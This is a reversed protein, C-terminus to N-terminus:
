WMKWVRKMGPICWVNMRMHFLTLQVSLSRRKAPVIYQDWSSKVCVLVDDHFQQGLTGMAVNNPVFDVEALRERGM